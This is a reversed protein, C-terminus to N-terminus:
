QSTRAVKATSAPSYSPLHNSGAHFFFASSASSRESRIQFSASASATAAATCPSGADTLSSALGLM